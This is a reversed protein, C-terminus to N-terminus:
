VHNEGGRDEQKTTKMKRDSYFKLILTVLVIIALALILYLMYYNQVSELMTDAASASEDEEGNYPVRTGRVLLRHSNVGYPTCTFLTVYDEGEEIALGKSLADMDNKDIMDLIQDVEYALVEDLVHIYFKDGKEIQDLDTFIKATPLGRHGALVSHTSEGGIPLKTGNIHGVGTQLVNDATGHYISIKEGLKPISIYGMVGDNATNLVKWYETEELGLDDSGFVDAYIDNKTMKDNFARALEWEKSFDEEDLECMVEEYYMIQQSQKYRNWQNSITPYTLILFGIVIVGIILIDGLRKKKKM